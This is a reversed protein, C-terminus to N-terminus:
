KEQSISKCHTFLFLTRCQLVRWALFAIINNNSVYRGGNLANKLAKILPYKGANCFSGGFDDFDLTWVM